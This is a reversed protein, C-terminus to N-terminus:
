LYKQYDEPLVKACLARKSEFEISGEANNKAEIAECRSDVWPHSKKKILVERM